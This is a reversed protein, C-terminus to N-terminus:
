RVAQCRTRLHPQAAARWGSEAQGSANCDLSKFDAQFPQGVFERCSSRVMDSLSRRGSVAPNNESSGIGERATAIKISTALRMTGHAAAAPSPPEQAPRFIMIRFAPAQIPVLWTPEAIPSQDVIVQPFIVPRDAIIISGNLELGSISQDVVVPTQSTLGVFFVVRSQAVVALGNTEIRAHIIGEEIPAID